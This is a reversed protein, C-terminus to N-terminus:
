AKDLDSERVVREHPENISKIRYEYEGAREPLKKTVEYVGGSAHRSM